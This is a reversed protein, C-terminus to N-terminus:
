EQEILYVAALREPDTGLLTFRHNTVVYSKGSEMHDMYRAQAERTQFVWFALGPLLVNLPLEGNSALDYFTRYSMTQLALEGALQEATSDLYYSPWVVMEVRTRIAQSLGYALSYLAKRTRSVRQSLNESMVETGVPVVLVAISNSFERSGPYSVGQQRLYRALSWGWGCSVVAVKTGPDLGYSEAMRQFEDGLSEAKVKWYKLTVMQFGGWDYEYYGPPAGRGTGPHGKFLYHRFVHHSELDSFVIGGGPMQERVFNVAQAVQSRRSERADIPWGAAYAIRTVNWLPVLVVAALMIVAPRRGVVQRLLFAIAPVAFVLLLSIHRMGAYPYLALLGGLEAVMWPALFLFATVRRGRRGDRAVGRVLLLVVGALFMVLAVFGVPRSTFLFGFAAVTRTAVFTLVKDRAPNFYARSLFGGKMSSEVQSGHLKSLHTFYQFVLLAVTSVEAILWARLMRGRIRDRIVAYLSYCGATFLLMIASYQSLLALCQALGFFLMLAFSQRRVGAEFCYLACLSFCIVLAYARIESSVYIAAPAFALLIMGILGTTRDFLEKLWKYGFFVALTGALISPLRLVFDSCYLKCLPFLVAHMLSPDPGALDNRYMAWLTPKSSLTVHMAEDPNLMTPLAVLVRALLGGALVVLVPLWFNTEFWHNVASWCLQANAVWRSLPGAASDDLRGPPEHDPTTNTV